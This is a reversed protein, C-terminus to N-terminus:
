LQDMLVTSYGLSNLFDLKIDLDAWANLVEKTGFRSM